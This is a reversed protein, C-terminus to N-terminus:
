HLSKNVSVEVSLTLDTEPQLRHMTGLDLMIYKQVTHICKLHKLVCICFFNISTKM